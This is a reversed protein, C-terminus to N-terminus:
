HVVYKNLIKTKFNEFENEGSFIQNVRYEKIMKIHDIKINTPIEGYRDIFWKLKEDIFKKLAARLVKKGDGKTEITGGGIHKCHNSGENIIVYGIEYRM